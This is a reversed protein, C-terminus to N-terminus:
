FRSAFKGGIQIELDFNSKDATKACGFLVLVNKIARDNAGGVKCDLDSNVPKREIAVVKGGIVELIAGLNEAIGSKGTSDVISIRINKEELYTDSFYATLRTSMTGVLMYGDDGDALKVKKLYQSKAMDIDNEDVSKIKKMFLTLKIKDIPSINSNDKNWWYIVPFQFNKTITEAMLKGGIKENIGLQWVNKIRLLGYNRSVSVQTDAPITIKTKEGLKPDLLFVAVDGNEELSFYSFKDKSNWTSNRVFSYVLIITIIIIAPFFIKKIM